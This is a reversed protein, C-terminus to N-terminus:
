FHYEVTVSVQANGIAGIQLVLNTPAPLVPFLVEGLAGVTWQQSYNVGDASWSAAIYNSTSNSVIGVTFYGAFPPNPVQLQVANASGRGDRISVSSNLWPAFEGIGIISTLNIVQAGLADVQGQLAARLGTLTTVQSNLGQITANDSQVAASLSAIQGQLSDLQTLNAKLEGELTSVQGEIYALRTVNASLEAKLASIMPANSHAESNLSSASSAEGVAESSLASVQTRDTSIQGALASSQAYFYLAPVGGIVLGVILVAVIRLANGKKSQDM